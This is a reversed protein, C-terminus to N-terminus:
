RHRKNASATLSSRTFVYARIFYSAWIVCLGAVTLGLSATVSYRQSVVPYFLVIFVVSLLVPLAVWPTRIFRLM